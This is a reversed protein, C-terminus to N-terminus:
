RGSWSAGVWAPASAAACRRELRGPQVRGPIREDAVVVHEGLALHRDRRLDVGEGGAVAEDGREVRLEPRRALLDVRLGGDRCQEAAALRQVRDLDGGVLVAPEVRGALGFAAEAMGVHVVRLVEARSTLAIRSSVTLRSPVLWARTEGCCISHSRARSASACSRQITTKEWLGSGSSAKAASASSGRTTAVIAPLECLFRMVCCPRMQRM